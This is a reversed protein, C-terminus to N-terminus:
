PWYDMFGEKFHLYEWGICENIYQVKAAADAPRQRFMVWLKSHENYASCTYGWAQMLIQMSRNTHFACHVPLLYMWNPDRPVDGRVLTHLALNGNEAVYSEIEDLTDRSRVHEFVASSVVLSFARKHLETPSVPAYKPVIFQDYNALDLGFNTHLYISLKCGGSGWDLWKGTDILGHRNMLYLMLSQNFYPPANNNPNNEMAAPDTHFAMNLVEWESHSMSFHTKSGVFGCVPCKWYDVDSLGYQNFKKTFFYNMHANCIICNM